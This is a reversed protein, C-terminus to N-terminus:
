NLKAVIWPGFQRIARARLARYETLRQERKLSRLRDITQQRNMNM